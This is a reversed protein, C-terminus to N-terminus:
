LKNNNNNNNNIPAVKIRQPQVVNRRRCRVKKYFRKIESKVESRFFSQIVPNVITMALLFVLGVVFTSAKADYFQSQIIPVFSPLYCAVYALLMLGFIGVVRRKKSIYISNEALHAQERLFKQMFCYTWISTVVIIGIEPLFVVLVVLTFAIEGEFKSECSGFSGFVFQGMGFFPTTSILATIIWISIVVIVAVKPKVYQQYFIPKVIFLWRDVSIAALTANIVMISHKLIFGAINCTVEKEEVSGGFVWEGTAASILWSSMYLVAMEYHVMILSTFLITSPVKFSKYQSITAALVITNAMIAGTLELILAAALLPGNVDSALTYNLGHIDM